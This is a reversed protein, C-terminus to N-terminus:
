KRRSPFGTGETPFNCTNGKLTEALFKGMRVVGDPDIVWENIYLGIICVSTPVNNPKLVSFELLYGETTWAPAGNKTFPTIQMSPLTHCSFGSYVTTSLNYYQSRVESYPLGNPNRIDGWVFDPTFASFFDM